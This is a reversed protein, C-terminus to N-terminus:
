PLCTARARMMDFRSACAFAEAHDIAPCGASGALVSGANIPLKRRDLGTKGQLGAAYLAM